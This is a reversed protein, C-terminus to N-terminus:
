FDAVGDGFGEDVFGMDGVHGGADAGPAVGHAGLEEGGDGFGAVLGDGPVLGVGFFAGGGFVEEGEGAAAGVTGVAGSDEVAPGLGFGAGFEAEDGADAGAGEDGGEGEDALAVVFFEFGGVGGDGGVIEELDFVEEVDEAAVAGGVVGGHAVEELLPDVGVGEAEDGGLM